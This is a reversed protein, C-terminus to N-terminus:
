SPYCSLCPVVASAWAFCTLRQWIGDVDSERSILCFDSGSWTNRLRFLPHSPIPHALLQQFLVHNGPRHYTQKKELTYNLIFIKSQEVSEVSELPETPKAM